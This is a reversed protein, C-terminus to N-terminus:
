AEGQLSAWLCRRRAQLHSLLGEFM